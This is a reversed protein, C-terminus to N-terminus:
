PFSLKQGFVKGKLGVLNMAAGQTTLSLSTGAADGEGILKLKTLQSKANYSGTIQYGLERGNSLTMTGTGSLKSGAATTDITLTWEGNMGAPLPVTTDSTQTVCKGGIVCARATDSFFFALTSPNITATSKDSANATYAVGGSIGTVSESEKLSAGVTGGRELTKGAIPGSGAASDAGNVYTESRVGTIQGNAQQLLKVILTDNGNSTDINTYSGSVDWLPTNNFMYTIQGGAGQDVTFTQGAITMTGTRESTSANPAVTYGVTGGGMGSAGSRITIWDAGSSATWTCSLGAMVSVIGEGGSADYSANTPLISAPNPISVSVAESNSPYNGGNDRAFYYLMGSEFVRVTYSYSDSTPHQPQSPSYTWTSSGPLEVGIYHIGSEDTARITVDAYGCGPSQTVEYTPLTIVAPQTMKTDPSNYSCGILDPGTNCPAGRQAWPSAEFDPNRTLDPRDNYSDPYDVIGWESDPTTANHWVRLGNYTYSYEVVGDCRINEIDAISVPPAGAYDICVPILLISPYPIQANALNIATSVVSKRQSFTMSVNNLTYAGYYGTYGTGKSTFLDAFNTQMTTTEPGYAQLVQGNHNTDLGAFVATHNYNYIFFVDLYVYVADGYEQANTNGVDQASANVLCACAFAVGAALSCAREVALRFRSQYKSMSM